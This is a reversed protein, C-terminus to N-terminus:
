LHFAVKNSTITGAFVSYDGVNAGREFSTNQLNLTCSIVLVGHFNKYTTRGIDIQLNDVYKAKPAILVSSKESLVVPGAHVFSVAGISDSYLILDKDETSKGFWSHLLFRGIHGGTEVVPRVVM